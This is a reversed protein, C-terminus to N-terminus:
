PPLLPEIGRSATQPSKEEASHSIFQYILSLDPTGFNGDKWAIGNPFIISQFRQKQELNAEKWLNWANLLFQNAFNLDTEIDCENSELDLREIKLIAIDNELQSLKSDKHEISLKGDIFLDIIKSKREELEQIQRDIDRRKSYTDQYYERWADKVIENFLKLIAKSPTINKLLSVFKDHMTEEPISHLCQNTKCHYKPYKKTRGKPSSASLKKGCNGCLVLGRLPFLPNNRQYNDTAKHKGRRILQIKNFEELSIIPTHLGKYEKGDITCVLVGCYYKNSLIKATFQSSIPKGDREQIIEPHSNLFETFNKEKWLGELYKKFAQQLIYFVKQNIIDPETKKSEVRKVSPLYGFPPKWTWIGQQLRGIMGKQTRDARVDNDFQAITALMNEMLKGSPTEDINETASRLKTTSKSLLVKVAHHEEVNRFFRDIKWVLFIDIDKQKHCFSIAQLLETREKTKGSEGKEVFVNAIQWDNQKCFERCVREQMALSTNEVQEKSSVRCYIVAKM